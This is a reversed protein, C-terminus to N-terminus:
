QEPQAPTSFLHLFEDTKDCVDRQAELAALYHEAKLVARPNNKDVYTMILVKLDDILQRVKNNERRERDVDLKDFGTIVFSHAIRQFPFLVTLGGDEKVYRHFMEKVTADCDQVYATVTEDIEVFPTAREEATRYAHQYGTGMVQHDTHYIRGRTIYGVCLTGCELFRIVTGRFHHVLNIM